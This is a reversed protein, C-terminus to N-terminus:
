DGQKECMKLIRLVDNMTENFEKLHEKAIIEELIEVSDLDRRVYRYTCDTVANELRIQKHYFYEALSIMENKRM